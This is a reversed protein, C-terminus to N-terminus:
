KAIINIVPSYGDIKIDPVVVLECNEKVLIEKIKELAREARKKKAAELEKKIEEETKEKKM